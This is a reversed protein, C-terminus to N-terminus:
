NAFAYNKVAPPRHYEAAFSPSPLEEFNKYYDGEVLDFGADQAILAQDNKEIARMIVKGASIAQMQKLYQLDSLLNKRLNASSYGYTPANVLLYDPSLRSIFDLVNHSSFLYGINLAIKYGLNRYNKLGELLLIEHQSDYNGYLTMSIVINRTQLGCQTIIEKFYSGHGNKLAFIHRPSIELVLFNNRNKNIFPLGNLLHATRSLRDSHSISNTPISNDVAELKLNANNIQPTYPMSLSQTIYGDILQPNAAYRLPIIVSDLRTKNSLISVKGKELIFPQYNPIKQERAFKDNFLGMLQQVLM